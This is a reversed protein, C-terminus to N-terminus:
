KKKPLCVSYTFKIDSNDRYMKVFAEYADDKKPDRDGSPPNVHFTMMEKDSYKRQHTAEDRVIVPAGYIENDSVGHSRYWARHADMAKMFGDMSGGAKIESVRVTAIDGDCKPAANQAVAAPVFAALLLLLNKM